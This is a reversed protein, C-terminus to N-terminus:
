PHRIRVATAGPWPWRRAGSRVVAQRWLTGAAWGQRRRRSVVVDGSAAHCAELEDHRKSGDAQFKGGYARSAAGLCSSTTDIRRYHNFQQFHCCELAVGDPM